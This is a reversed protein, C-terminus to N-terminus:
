LKEANKLENNNQGCSQCVDGVGHSGRGVDNGKEGSVKLDKIQLLVAFNLGNLHLLEVAAGFLGSVGDVVSHLSQRCTHVQASNLLSCKIM